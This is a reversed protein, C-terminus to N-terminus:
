SASSEREALADGDLRNAGLNRQVLAGVMAEQPFYLERAFDRMRVDRM